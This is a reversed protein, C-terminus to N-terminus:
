PDCVLPDLVVRVCVSVNWRHFSAHIRYIISDVSPHIVSHIFDHDSSISPINPTVEKLGMLGILTLQSTIIGVVMRSFILPWM